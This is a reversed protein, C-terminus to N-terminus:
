LRKGKEGQLCSAFIAANKSLLLRPGEVVAHLESVWKYTSGEVGAINSQLTFSFYVKM